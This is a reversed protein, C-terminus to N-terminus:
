RKAKMKAYDYRRNKIGKRYSEIASSRIPWIQTRSTLSVKWIRKRRRVWKWQIWFSIIVIIYPRRCVFSIKQFTVHSTRIDTYGYLRNEIRMDISYLIILVDFLLLWCKDRNFTIVPPEDPNGINEEFIRFLARRWPIQRLRGLLNIVGYTTRSM